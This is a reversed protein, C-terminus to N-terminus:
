SIIDLSFVQLISNILVYQIKVHYSVLKLGEKQVTM